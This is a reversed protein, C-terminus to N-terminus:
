KGKYFIDLVEPMKDKDQGASLSLQYDEAPHKEGIDNGGFAEYDCDTKFDARSCVFNFTGSCRRHECEGCKMGPPKECRLGESATGLPSLICKFKRSTWAFNGVKGCSKCHDPCPLCVMDPNAARSRPGDNLKQVRALGGNEDYCTKASPGSRLASCTVKAKCSTSTLTQDKEPKSGTIDLDCLRCNGEKALKLGREVASQYCNPWHAEFASFPATDLQMCQLGQFKLNWPSWSADVRDAESNNSEIRAALTSVPVLAFLSVILGFM